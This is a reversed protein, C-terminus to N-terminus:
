HGTARLVVGVTKAIVQVDTKLSIDFYYARDFSSRQSFSSENRVSVQWFGTIGPRMAYYEKGPYLRRQEPMMPRPGVLSMDGLLVNFVQPLEDLSTARIFQGFRTIRPDHRLKQRLDWEAKAKPNSALYAALVKDADRAMSRLKIMRFIRGNKGVRNQFYFPKGGDLAVICALTLVVVLIPVIAMLILTIDFLRKGAVRYGRHRGEVVITEAHALTAM